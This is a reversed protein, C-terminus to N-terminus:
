IRREDGLFTWRNQNAVNENSIRDHAALAIQTKVTCSCSLQEWNQANGSDLGIL